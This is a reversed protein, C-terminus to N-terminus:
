FSVHRVLSSTILFADSPRPEEEEEEEKEIGRRSRNVSPNNGCACVHFSFLPPPIM